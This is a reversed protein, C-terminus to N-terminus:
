EVGIWVARDCLGDSVRDLVAAEAVAFRVAAGGQPIFDGLYERGIVDLWADVPIVVARSPRPATPVSLSASM